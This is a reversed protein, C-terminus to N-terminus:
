DTGIMHLANPISAIMHKFFHKAATKDAINKV